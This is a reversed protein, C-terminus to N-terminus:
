KDGESEKKANEAHEELRKKDLNSKDIKQYILAYGQQPFLLKDPPYERAIDGRRTCDEAGQRVIREFEHLTGLEVFRVRLNDPVCQVMIRAGKIFRESYCKQLPDIEPSFERHSIRHVQYKSKGKLTVTCQYKKDEGEPKINVNEKTYVGEDPENLEDEKIM